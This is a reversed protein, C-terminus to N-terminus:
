HINKVFEEDAPCWKYRKFESPKVWKIEEHELAKPTGVNLKAKIIQLHIDFDPYSYNIDTMKEIPTIECALEEQIERILAQEPSEGKEIKGGPFEWLGAQKKNQPRKCILVEGNENVIFAGVVELM